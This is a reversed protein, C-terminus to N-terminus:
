KDDDMKARGFSALDILHWDSKKMKLWSNSTM